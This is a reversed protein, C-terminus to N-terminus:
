KWCTRMRGHKRMSNNMLHTTIVLVKCCLVLAVLKALLVSRKRRSGIRGKLENISLLVPTRIFMVM